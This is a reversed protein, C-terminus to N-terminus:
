NSLSLSLVVAVEFQPMLSTTLMWLRGADSQRAAMVGKGDMTQQGFAM